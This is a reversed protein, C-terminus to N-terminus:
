QGCVQRNVLFVDVSCRVGPSQNSSTMAYLCNGVDGQWQTKGLSDHICATGVPNEWTWKEETM